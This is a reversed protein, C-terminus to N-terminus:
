RTAQMPSYPPQQRQQFYSCCTRPWLRLPVRMLIPVSTHQYFAFQTQPQQSHLLSLARDADNLMAASQEIKPQHTILFPHLKQSTPATLSLRVDHGRPMVISLSRDSKTSLTTENGLASHPKQASLFDNEFMVMMLPFLASFLLRLDGHPLVYLPRRLLLAYAITSKMYM